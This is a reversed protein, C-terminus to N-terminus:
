RKRRLLRWIRRRRAVPEPSVERADTSSPTPPASPVEPSDASPPPAPEPPAERTDTSSPGIGKARVERVATAKQAQPGIVRLTSSGIRFTDGAHLTAAATLREENLFTGNTSGLDELVLRGEPDRSLRAHRRSLDADDGLGGEAFGLRGFNVPDEPVPMRSGAAPGSTIELYEGAMSNM